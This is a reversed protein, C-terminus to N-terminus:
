CSISKVLTDRLEFCLFKKVKDSQSIYVLVYLAVIYKLHYSFKLKLM